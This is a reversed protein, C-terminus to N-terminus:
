KTNKIIQQNMKLKWVENGEVFDLLTKITKNEYFSYEFYIERLLDFDDKTDLTMRIDNYKKFSDDIKLFEIKFKNKNNYIYNTVHELFILDSTESKIKKLAGLTVGETWFGFHTKIVPLGENTKFSIYESDSVLFINKLYELFDMSLFPNDACVRIIKTLNFRDGVEIFRELVNSESGRYFSVKHKECLSVIDNDSEKKTTAIILPVDSFRTKLSEILLELVGKEYFFPLMMKNPLRKSGLRAQVVIGLM